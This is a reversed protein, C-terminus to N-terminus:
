AVRLRRVRDALGGLEARLEAIRHDAHAIGRGLAALEGVASSGPAQGLAAARQELRSRLRLREGEVMLVCAYGDALTQEVDEVPASPANRLRRINDLVAAYDPATRAMSRNDPGNAAREM